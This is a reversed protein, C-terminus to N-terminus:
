APPHPGYYPGPAWFVYSILWVIVLIIVVANLMQRYAAPMPVQTNVVWLAVGVLALVLIVWLLGM